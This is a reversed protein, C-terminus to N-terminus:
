QSVCVCSWFIGQCEGFSGWPRGHSIGQLTLRPPGHLVAWRLDNWIMEINEVCWWVGSDCRRIQAEAETQCRHEGFRKLNDSQIARRWRHRPLMLQLAVKDPLPASHWACVCFVYACKWNGIIPPVLAARDAPNRPINTIWAMSQLQMLKPARARREMCLRLWTPQVQNPQFVTGAAHQMFWHINLLDRFVEFKWLSELKGWFWKGCKGVSRQFLKHFLKSSTCPRVFTSSMVRFNGLRLASYGRCGVGRFDPEVKPMTLGSM